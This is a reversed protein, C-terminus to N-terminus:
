KLEILESSLKPIDDRFNQANIRTNTKFSEQIPDELMKFPRGNVRVMLLLYANKLQDATM